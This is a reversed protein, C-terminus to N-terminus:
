RVTKSIKKRRKALGKAAAVENLIKLFTNVKAKTAFLAAERFQVKKTNLGLM